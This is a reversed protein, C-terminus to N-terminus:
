EKRIFPKAPQGDRDHPLKAQELLGTGALRLFACGSAKMRQYMRRGSFNLVDAIERRPSHDLL